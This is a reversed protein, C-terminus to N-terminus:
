RRRAMVYGRTSTHEGPYPAREVRVEVALGASEIAAVVADTPFFNWSIPCSDGLFDDPRGTQDGVHWALLLPGGPALVRRAEAFAPRLEARTLHVIAYFATLGAFAGDPTSLRTFDGAEFPIGPHRVRAEDIMGPAIDIGVAPVGRDNVYRAIQGSGTGLDAVRGGRARVDAVFVDLLARDLPKGDLENLFKDAYRAAVRGYTAAVVGLENRTERSKSDTM